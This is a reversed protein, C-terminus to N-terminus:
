PKGNVLVELWLDLLDYEGVMQQRLNRVWWCRRIFWAGLGAFVCGIFFWYVIQM